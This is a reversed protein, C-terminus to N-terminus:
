EGDLEVREDITPLDGLGTLSFTELFVRTTAYQLPQGPEDKRGAVRVLGRDLLNKLVAGSGVGRVADIESRTVPQRYAVVALTELAARSLKLPQGGKLRRVAEAHAPSTRMRYGGAAKVIEVGRGQGSLRGALELIAAEVLAPDPHELCRALTGAGVPEEAAFLLAEVASILADDPGDDETGPFRFVAGRQGDDDHSV